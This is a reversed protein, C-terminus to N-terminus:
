APESWGIEVVISAAFVTAGVSVVEGPYIELPYDTTVFNEGQTKSIGEKIAAATTGSFLKSLVPGGWTILSDIPGTIPTVIQSAGASISCIGATVTRISIWGVRLGNKGALIEIVSRQGAAGFVLGSMLSHPYRDLQAVRTLDKLLYNLGITNEATPINQAPDLGAADLVPLLSQINRPM